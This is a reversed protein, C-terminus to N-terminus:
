KECPALLHVKTSCLIGSKEKRSLIERQVHEEALVPFVRPKRVIQGHRDDQFSLISVEDPNRIRIEVVNSNGFKM